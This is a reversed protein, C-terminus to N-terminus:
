CIVISFIDFFAGGTLKLHYFINHCYNSTQPYYYAARVISTINLAEWPLNINAVKTNANHSRIRKKGIHEYKNHPVKTTLFIPPM